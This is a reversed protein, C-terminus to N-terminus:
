KRSAERLARIAALAQGQQSNRISIRNAKDLFFQCNRAADGAVGRLSALAEPPMPPPVPAQAGAVAVLCAVTM